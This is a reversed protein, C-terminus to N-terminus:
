RNSAKSGISFGEDAELDTAIGCGADVDIVVGCGDDVDTWRWLWCGRRDLAVAQMWMRRVALSCRPPM